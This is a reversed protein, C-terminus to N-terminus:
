REYDKQKEPPYLEMYESLTSSTGEYNWDSEPDIMRFPKGNPSAEDFSVPRNSIVTGWHNVMIWTSIECPYGQGDDDHRIEYMYMGKPLTNKDCRLITFLMPYGFLTINEFEEKTVDFRNGSM